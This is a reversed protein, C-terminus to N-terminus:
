FRFGGSLTVEYGDLDGKFQVPVTGVRKDLDVDDTWRYLGQGGVFIRPTIDWTLGVVVHTGLVSDEDDVDFDGLASTEVESDLSVFYGGIGAGAFLRVPGIPFQGKLTVMVACVSIRDDRTYYGAVATTGGVDEDSFFFDITGEIVLNEALVRGYSIWTALDAGYGADDLGGTPNNVGVGVMGYNKYDMGEALGTTGMFASAIVMAIFFILVRKFIADM